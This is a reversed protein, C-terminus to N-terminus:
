KECHIAKEWAEAAETTEGNLSVHAGNKVSTTEGCAGLDGSLNGRSIPSSCAADIGVAKM